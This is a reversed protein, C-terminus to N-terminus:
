KRWTIAAYVSRKIGVLPGPDGGYEAHHPQLLNQGTVAFEFRRDPHWAVRADATVYATVQEAPLASVYRVIQNFEFKSSLDIFSKLSIDHRPSAGETSSVTTADLSGPKNMLDMDLWAYSGEIRWSTSPKWNALLEFGKTTGRIGNRNVFPDIIAGDEMFPTGPELSLLHDYQNYFTALDFSLRPNVLQRFGAEYGLMTESTFIRDGTTQSFTPPNTSVPTTTTLTDEIDSPTRVARTVATWFSQHTSPTWLLRVSPEADFGTYSSHLIKSGATLALRGPVLQIEDQAFLSYLQDV